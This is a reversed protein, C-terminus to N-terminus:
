LSQVLKFLRSLILKISSSKEIKKRSTRKFNSAKEQRIMVIIMIMMWVRVEFVAPQTYAEKLDVKHWWNVLEKKTPQYQWTFWLGFILLKFFVTINKM